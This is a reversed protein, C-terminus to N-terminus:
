VRIGFKELVNRTLNGLVGRDEGQHGSKVGVNKEWAEAMRPNWGNGSLRAAREFGELVRGDLPVGLANSARVYGNALRTIEEWKNFNRAHGMAIELARSTAVNHLQQLMAKHYRGDINGDQAAKVITEFVEGPDRAGGQDAMQAIATAFENETTRLAQYIEDRERKATEALAQMEKGAKKMAGLDANLKEIRANATGLDRKLTVITENAAKNLRTLDEIEWRARENKWSVVEIREEAAGLYKMLRKNAALLENIQSQDGDAGLKYDALQARLAEIEKQVGLERKVKASVREAAEPSFKGADFVEFPSPGIGPLYRFQGELWEGVLRKREKGTLERSLEIRVRPALTGDVAAYFIQPVIMQEVVARQVQGAAMGGEVLEHIFSSASEAIEIKADKLHYADMVYSRLKEAMSAVVEAGGAKQFSVVRPALEAWVDAPMSDRLDSLSETTRLFIVGGGLEVKKGMAAAADNPDYGRFWGDRQVQAVFSWFQQKTRARAEGGQQAALAEVGDISAVFRAEGEGRVWIGRAAGPDDDPAGVLFGIPDGLRLEGAAQTEIPKVETLRKAREFVTDVGGGREGSVIFVAPKDSPVNLAAVLNAALMFTANEDTGTKGRLHTYIENLKKDATARALPRDIAGAGFMAAERAYDLERRLRRLAGLGDGLQAGFADIVRDLLNLTPKRKAAFGAGFARDVARAVDDPAVEAGRIALRVTAADGARNRETLVDEALELLKKPLPKTADFLDKGFVKTLAPAAEEEAVTVVAQQAEVGHAEAGHDLSLTLSKVAGAIAGDGLQAAQELAELIVTQHVTLGVPRKLLLELAAREPESLKKWSPDRPDVAPELEGNPRVLMGERNALDTLMALDEPFFGGFGLPSWFGSPGEGRVGIMRHEGDKAGLARRYRLPSLIFESFRGVGDISLSRSKEVEDLIRTPDEMPAITLKEPGEYGDAEPVLLAVKGDDDSVVLRSGSEPDCFDQVLKHTDADKHVALRQLEQALDKRKITSM